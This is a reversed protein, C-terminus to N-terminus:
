SYGPAPSMPLWSVNKGSLAFLSLLLQIYSIVKSSIFVFGIGAFATLVSKPIPDIISDMKATTIHLNSSSAGLTYNMLRYFTRHPGLKMLECAVRSRGFFWARGCDDNVTCLLVFRGGSMEFKFDFHMWKQADDGGIKGLMFAEEGFPQEEYIGWNREIRRECAEM